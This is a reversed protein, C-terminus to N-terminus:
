VEKEDTGLVGFAEKTGEPIWAGDVSFDGINDVKIRLMKKMKKSWPPMLEGSHVSKEM